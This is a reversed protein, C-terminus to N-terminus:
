DDTSQSLTSHNQVYSERPPRDPLWPWDGTRRGHARDKSMAPLGLEARMANRLVELLDQAQFWAPYYETFADRREVYVTVEMLAGSVRDALDAIEPSALLEVEGLEPQLEEEWRRFYEFLGDAILEEDDEPVPVTGEYPLFVAVGDVQRLMSEALGLFSAYATRRDTLWRRDDEAKLRREDARRNIHGSLLVGGLGGLLAFGGSFLAIATQQDM